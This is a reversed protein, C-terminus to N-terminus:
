QLGLTPINKGSGKGSSLSRCRAAKSIEEIGPNARQRRVIRGRGRPSPRPSPSGIASCGHDGLSPHLPSNGDRSPGTRTHTRQGPCGAGRRRARRLGGGAGDRGRPGVQMKERSMIHIMSIYNGWHLSATGGGEGPGASATWRRARRRRCLRDFARACAAKSHTPLRRCWVRIRQWGAGRVVEPELM